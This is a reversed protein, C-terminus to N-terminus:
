SHNKFNGFVGSGIIAGISYGIMMKNSSFCSLVNTTMEPM